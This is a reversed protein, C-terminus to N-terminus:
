GLSELDDETWLGEADILTWTGDNGLLVELPEDDEDTWIVYLGSPTRTMSANIPPSCSLTWSRGLGDIGHLQGSDGEHDQWTVFYADSALNELDHYTKILSQLDGGDVEITDVEEDNLWPKDGQRFLTITHQTTPLYELALVGQSPPDPTM